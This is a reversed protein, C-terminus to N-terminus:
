DSISSSAAAKTVVNRPVNKVPTSAPVAVPSVVRSAVGKSVLLDALHPPFGAVDGANYNKYRRAFKITTLM